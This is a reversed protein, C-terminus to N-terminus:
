ACLRKFNSVGKCCFEYQCGAWSVFWGSTFFRTFSPLHRVLAEAKIEEKLYTEAYDKLKDDRDHSSWVIPILGYRLVQDLNFDEGLEEPTFPHLYKIGARGGLLNVGRSKIKRASSGTLIFRRDSSEILRHVENLLNPMKQIEDVIVLGDNKFGSVTEYFKGVNALYDQYLTEDLLNIHLASPPPFLKNLLKTKGSGRVGFFLINKDESINIIRNKYM